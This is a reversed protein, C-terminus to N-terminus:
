RKRRIGNKKLYEEFCGPCTKARPHKSFPCDERNRTWREVIRPSRFRISVFDGGIQTFGSPRVVHAMDRKEKEEIKKNEVQLKKEWDRIDEEDSSEILAMGCKCCATVEM